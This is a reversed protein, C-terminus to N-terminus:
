FWGGAPPMGEGDGEGEGSDGNNEEEPAPESTSPTATDTSESSVPQTISGSAPEKWEFLGTFGVPVGATALFQAEFRYLKKAAAVGSNEMGDWLTSFVMSEGPLITASDVQDAWYRWFGFNWVIREGDKVLFDVRQNTPFNVLKNVESNNTVILRFEYLQKGNDLRPMVAFAYHIEEQTLESIGLYVEELMPPQATTTGTGENDTAVAEELNVVGNDPIVAVGGDTTTGSDEMDTATTEVPEVSSTEAFPETSPETLFNVRGEVIPKIGTHQKAYLEVAERLTTGTYVLPTKDQFVSYGDGGAAVYDTTVITYTADASIDLGKVTVEYAKNEFLGLTMGAVHMYGPAGIKGAGECLLKYLERGTLEYSVLTHDCPFADYINKVTVPGQPLGARISAASIFAVDTGAYERAVDAALNGLECESARITKVGLDKPLDTVVEKLKADLNNTYDNLIKLIDTNAKWRGDMAELTEDFYRIHWGKEADGEFTVKLVGVKEGWKGAHVILTDDMRMPLELETDSAGGFIIDIEPVASALAIDQSVGQHTLAIVIDASKSLEPVLKKATEIPDEFSIGETFKPNIRTAADASVLGFIAFKLGGREQIVYPEAIKESEDSSKLNACLIPFKAQKIRDKIVNKGFRFDEPGLCAADYKLKNMMDIDVYGEYMSSLLSGGFFGGSDLLIWEMKTLQRKTNVFIHRKAVGGVPKTALGIESLSADDPTFSYLHGNTDSTHLFVVNVIEAYAYAPVFMTLVVAFFVFLYLKARM